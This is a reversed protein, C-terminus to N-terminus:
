NKAMVEEIIKDIGDKSFEDFTDKLEELYDFGKQSLYCYITVQKHNDETGDGFGATEYAEDFEDGYLYYLGDIDSNYIPVNSDAIEHVADCGQKQYYTEFDTINKNDKLYEVFNDKIELEVSHVREQLDDDIEITRKSM